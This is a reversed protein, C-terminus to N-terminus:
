SQSDCCAESLDCIGLHVPSRLPSCLDLGPSQRRLTAHLYRSRKWAAKRVLYHQQKAPIVRRANLFFNGVAVPGWLFWPLWFGPKAPWHTLPAFEPVALGAAAGLGALSIWWPQRRTLVGTEAVPGRIVAVLMLALLLVLVMLLWFIGDNTM